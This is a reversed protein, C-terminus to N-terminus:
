RNCATKLSDSYNDVTVKGKIYLENFYSDYDINSASGSVVAAPLNGSTGSIRIKSNELWFIKRKEREVANSLSSFVIAAEVPEKVEGQFSFRNAEVITSDIQNSLFKLLYVKTGNEM